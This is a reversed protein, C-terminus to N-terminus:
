NSPPQAWHEPAPLSISCGTAVDHRLLLWGACWGLLNKHQTAPKKKGPPPSSRIGGSMPPCKEANGNKQHSWDQHWIPNATLKKPTSGTNPQTKSMSWSPTTNRQGVVGPNAATTTHGSSRM